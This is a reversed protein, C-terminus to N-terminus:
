DRRRKPQPTRCPFADRFAVFSLAIATKDLDDPHSKLYKVLIRVGDTVPLSTATPTPIPLCIGDQASVAGQLMLQTELFGQVYGTCLGFDAFLKGLEAQPKDRMAGYDEPKSDLVALALECRRLLEAGTTAAVVPTCWMAAALLIGLLLLGRPASLTVSGAAIDSDM